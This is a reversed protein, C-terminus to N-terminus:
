KILNKQVFLCDLQQSEVSDGSYPRDLLVFNHQEMLLQVDGFLKQNKWYQKLELEIQLAKVHHLKEGFGILVEYSFGEVDIKFLDLTDDKINLENSLEDFRWMDVEVSNFIFDDSVNQLVSSVGINGERQLDGAHFNTPKTENGLAVNFVNYNPYVLKIKEALEPHAEFIFCHDPEIKWADTVARADHGDRSGIEYFTRPVITTREHLLPVLQKLDHRIGM